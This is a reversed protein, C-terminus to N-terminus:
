DQDTDNANAVFLFAGNRTLCLDNPNDGVAVAGTFTETRTDMIRVTDSGWCSIYLEANM